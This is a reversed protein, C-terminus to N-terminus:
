ESLRNALRLFPWTDHQSLHSFDFVWIPNILITSELVPVVLGYACLLATELSIIAVNIVFHSQLTDTYQFSCLRPSYRAPVSSFNSALRDIPCGEWRPGVAM